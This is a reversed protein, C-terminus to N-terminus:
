KNRWYKDIKSTRYATVVTPPEGSSVIARLLYVRAGSEVRSQYANRRGYAPVVQEPNRLVEDLQKPDIGRRGLERGAHASLAPKM